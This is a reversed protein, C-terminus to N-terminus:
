AAEALAADMDARAKALIGAVRPYETMPILSIKQAGLASLIPALTKTRVDADAPFKAQAENLLDIIANRVDNETLAPQDEVQKDELPLEPEDHNEVEGATEAQVHVGAAEAAAVIAPDLNAVTEAAKAAGAAMEAKTRRTRKPAETTGPAPDEPIADEAQRTALDEDTTGYDLPGSWLGGLPRKRRSAASATLFAAFAEMDDPHNLECNVHM